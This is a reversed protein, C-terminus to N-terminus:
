NDDRDSSNKSGSLLLSMEKFNAERSISRINQSNIKIPVCVELIRDYIRSHALDPPHKLEELTLNTTVIMPKKSRYRTDIVNFVQELAFETSREMGLDDLILLSYRSFSDIYGNRDEQFMGTLTNLIRGSTTMLVPVQRDILANAICGALFTKGTGIGGWLLLGAGRKQMEDFKNVYERAKQIQPNYGLDNAFTCEWLARDHLGVSRKAAIDDMCEQRRQRAEEAEYAEQRCRCMMYPTFPRGFLVLSKQRPTNCKKCYILGDAPNIYEDDQPKEPAAQFLLKSIADNDTM